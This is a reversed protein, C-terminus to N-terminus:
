GKRYGFVAHVKNRYHLPNEMGVIPYVKAFKHLQKNLQQQKLKLQEEYPLHLYQCGGCIQSVKCLRGTHKVAKQGEEMHDKKIAEGKRPGTGGKAGVDKKTLQGKAAKAQGGGREARGRSSISAGSKANEKGPGRGVNKESGGGTIDREGKAKGGIAQGEKRGTGPEEQRGKRKVAEKRMQTGKGKGSIRKEM